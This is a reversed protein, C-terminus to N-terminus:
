KGAPPHLDEHTNVRVLPGAAGGGERGPVREFVSDRRARGGGWEEEGHRKDREGKCLAWRVHGERVETKKIRKKM